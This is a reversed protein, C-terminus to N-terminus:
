LGTLEGDDDDLNIDGAQVRWDYFPKNLRDFGPGGPKLPVTDQSPPLSRNFSMDDGDDFPLENPAYDPISFEEKLAAEVQKLVRMGEALIVPAGREFSNRVVSYACWPYSNRNNNKPGSGLGQVSGRALKNKSPRRIQTLPNVNKM